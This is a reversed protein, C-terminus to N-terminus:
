SSRNGGLVDRRLRMSAREAKEIFDPPTYTPDAFKCTAIHDGPDDVDTHCPCECEGCGGNDDCQILEVGDPRM